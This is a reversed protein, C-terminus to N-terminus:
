IPQNERELFTAAARGTNLLLDLISVAHEFPGHLQPYEPYSSYDMWEVRIGKEAFLDLDLYARASPGSLYVEAGAQACIAVLRESAGETLAYDTSRTIATEVDLLACLHELFLRNVDSLREIAAAERYLNRIAPGFDDFRAAKAYAHLISRWHRDAWSSDSIRTESVKQRYRGKSEVPITLWHLGSATKIRNRNRWDRRTFQVEDLLVFEDVRRILDFYGKWPIYNSQVIAVRKM